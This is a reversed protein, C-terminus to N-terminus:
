ECNEDHRVVAHFCVRSPVCTHGDYPQAQHVSRGVADGGHACGCGGGDLTVDHNSQALSFTFIHLTCSHARIPDVDPLFFRATRTVTRAPAKPTCAHALGEASGCVCHAGKQPGISRTHTSGRAHATATLDQLSRWVRHHPACLALPDFGCCGSVVGSVAM